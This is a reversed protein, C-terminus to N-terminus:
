FTSNHLYKCSNVNIVKLPSAKEFQSPRGKDQDLSDLGNATYNTILDLVAHRGPTTFALDLHGHGYLKAVRYRTNGKQQSADMLIHDSNALKDGVAAVQIFDVYKPAASNEFVISPNTPSKYGHYVFWLISEMFSIEAAATGKPLYKAMESLTEKPDHLNLIGELVKLTKPNKLLESVGKEITEEFLRHLEKKDGYHNTDPILKLILTAVTTIRRSRSYPALSFDGSFTSPSGLTILGKVMTGAVQEISDTKHMKGNYSQFGSVWLRSTMGGMSHGVITIKKGSKEFAYEIAAPIDYSVINEFAYEPATSRMDGSGHGRQNIVFVDYGLKQLDLAMQDWYTTQALMGHVLLIPEGGHNAFRLGKLTAGDRTAISFQSVNNVKTKNIDIGSINKEELTSFYYNDSNQVIYRSKAGHASLSFAITIFYFLNLFRM